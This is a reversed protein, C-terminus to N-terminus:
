VCTDFTCNSRISHIAHTPSASQLPYSAFPTHKITDTDHICLACETLILWKIVRGRKLWDTQWIVKWFQASEHTGVNCTSLIASKSHGYHRGKKRGVFFCSVYVSVCCQIIEASAIFINSTCQADHMCSLRHAYTNCIFITSYLHFIM